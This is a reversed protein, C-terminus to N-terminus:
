YVKLDGAILPTFFDPPPPGLLAVVEQITLNGFEPPVFGFSAIEDTDPDNDNVWFFITMGVALGPPANVAATIEGAVGLSDGVFMFSSLEFRIFGNAIYDIFMGHGAVSGDSMEVVSFAVWKPLMDQGMHSGRGQAIHDAPVASGAQVNASIASVLLLGTLLIARRAARCTLRM